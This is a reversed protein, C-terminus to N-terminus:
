SGQLKIEIIEKQTEKDTAIKFDDDLTISFDFSKDETTVSGTGNEIAEADGQQLKLTASFWGRLTIKGKEVKWDSLVMKPFDLLEVHDALPDFCESKHKEAYEFVANEQTQPFEEIQSICSICIDSVQKLLLYASKFIAQWEEDLPSIIEHFLANRLAYVYDAFWEVAKTAMLPAYEGRRTAYLNERDLRDFGNFPVQYIIAYSNSAALPDVEHPYRYNYEFRLRLATDLRLCADKIKGTVTQNFGKKPLTIDIYNRLKESIERMVADYFDHVFQTENIILNQYRHKEVVARIIPRLDIEKKICLVEPLVHTHKKARYIRLTSDTVFPKDGDYSFLSVKGLSGVGMSAFVVDNNVVLTSKNEICTEHTFYSEIGDTNVGSNTLQKTKIVGVDSVGEAYNTGSNKLVDFENPIKTTEFQELASLYGDYKPQYYEADLRGSVKFSTSLYKTTYSDSTIGETCVKLEKILIQKAESYLIQAQHNLKELTTFYKEVKDKFSNSYNCVLLDRILTITLHPQATMSSSRVMQKYAFSSSFFLYLVIYDKRSLASANIFILDRTVYSPQTILGATGVRGGKTLVVDGPYCMHLTRFEEGMEPINVCANYEIQDKVDAVRVFPITGTNYYPELSPYFASADVQLGQSEITVFKDRNKCIFQEIELYEKKYYDSDFRLTTTDCVDSMRIESCELGDM